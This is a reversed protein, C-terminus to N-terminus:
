HLKKTHISVSSMRMKYPTFSTSMPIHVAKRIFKLMRESSLQLTERICDCRRFYRLLRACWLCMLCCCCCCCMSLVHSYKWILYLIRTKKKTAIRKKKQMSFALYFFCSTPTHALDIQNITMVHNLSSFRIIYALCWSLNVVGEGTPYWILLWIKWRFFIRLM